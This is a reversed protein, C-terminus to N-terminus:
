MMLFKTAMGILSSQLFLFNENIKIKGEKQEKFILPNIHDAPMRSSRIM